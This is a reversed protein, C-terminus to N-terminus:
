NCWIYYYFSKHTTSLCVFFFSYFVFKYCRWTFLYLWITLFINILWFGICLVSSAVLPIIRLWVQQITSIRDLNALLDIKLCLWSKIRTNLWDNIFRIGIIKANIIILRHVLIIFALLMWTVKRLARNNFFIYMLLIIKRCFILIILYLSTIHIGELLIIIM